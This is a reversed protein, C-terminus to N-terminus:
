VLQYLITWKSRNPGMNQGFLFIVCQLQHSYKFGSVRELVSDIHSEPSKGRIIVNQSTFTTFVPVIFHLYSPQHTALFTLLFLISALAFEKLAVYFTSIILKYGM